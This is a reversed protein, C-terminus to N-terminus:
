QIQYVCRCTELAYDASHVAHCWPWLKHIISLFHQTQCITVTYEGSVHANYVSGGGSIGFHPKTPSSQGEGICPLAKVVVCKAGQITMRWQLVAVVFPYYANISFKLVLVAHCHYFVRKIM